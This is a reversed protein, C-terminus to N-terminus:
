INLDCIYGWYIIHYINNIEAFKKSVRCLGVDKKKVICVGKKTKSIKNVDINYINYIIHITIYLIYPINLTHRFIM